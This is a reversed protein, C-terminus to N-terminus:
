TKKPRSFSHNLYESRFCHLFFAMDLFDYIHKKELFFGLSFFLMHKTSFPAYAIHTSDSKIRSWATFSAEEEGCM